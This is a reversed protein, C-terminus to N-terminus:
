KIEGSPGLISALQEVNCENLSLTKMIFDSIIEAQHKRIDERWHYGDAMAVNRDLSQLPTYLDIIPLGKDIAIGRTFQNFEQIREDNEILRLPACLVLGLHAESCKKLIFEITKKYAIEREDPVTDLSHCGNNFLILDYKHADIYFNLERLYRPDTVCKSSVWYTINLYSGLIERVFPQYGNCISDGVLLVRKSESDKANYSYSISWEINEVERSSQKLMYDRYNVTKESM